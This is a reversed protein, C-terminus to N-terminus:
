RKRKENTAVHSGNRRREVEKGRGQIVNSLKNEMSAKYHYTGMYEYESVFYLRYVCCCFLCRPGYLPEHSMHYRSHSRDFKGGTRSDLVGWLAESEKARM